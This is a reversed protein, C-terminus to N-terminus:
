EIRLGSVENRWHEIMMKSAAEKEEAAQQVGQILARVQEQKADRLKTYKEKLQLISV